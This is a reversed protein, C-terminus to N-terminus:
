STDRWPKEILKMIEPKPNWMVVKGLEWAKTEGQAMKLGEEPQAGNSEYNPDELVLILVYLTNENPLRTLDSNYRHSWIIWIRQGPSGNIRRLSRYRWLLLLKASSNRKQM